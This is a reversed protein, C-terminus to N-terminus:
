LANCSTPLLSRNSLYWPFVNRQTRPCFYTTLGMGSRKFSSVKSAKRISLDYFKCTVSWVWATQSSYFWSTVFSILQNLFSFGGKILLLTNTIPKNGLCMRHAHRHHMIICIVSINVHLLHLNLLTFVLMLPPWVLCIVANFLLYRHTCFKLQPQSVPKYWIRYGAMDSGGPLTTIRFYTSSLPMPPLSM